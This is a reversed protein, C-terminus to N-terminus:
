IFSTISVAMFQFCVFSIYLLTFTIEMGVSPTKLRTRLFQLFRSNAEDHGDTRM